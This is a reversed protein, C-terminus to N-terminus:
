SIRGERYLNDVKRVIDERRLYSVAMPNGKFSWILTHSKWEKKQFAIKFIQLFNIYKKIKSPPLLIAFDQHSSLEKNWRKGRASSYNEAAFIDGKSM